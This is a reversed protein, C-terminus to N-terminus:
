FCLLVQSLRCDAEFSQEKRACGTEYLFLCLMPCHVICVAYTRVYRFSILKFEHVSQCTHGTQLGSFAYCQRKGENKKLTIEQTLYSTRVVWFYRFTKELKLLHLMITFSPVSQFVHCACKRVHKGQFGIRPLECIVSFEVTSTHINRMTDPKLRPSIQSFFNGEARVLLRRM